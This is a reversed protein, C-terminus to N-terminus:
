LTGPSHSSILSVDELPHKESARVCDDYMNLDQGETEKRIQSFIKFTEEFMLNQIEELRTLEEKKKRISQLKEKLQEFKRPDPSSSATGDDNDGSETDSIGERWCKLFPDANWYCFDIDYFPRQLDELYDACTVPNM